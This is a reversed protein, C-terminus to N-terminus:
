APPMSLDDVIKGAKQAALIADKHEMFFANNQIQSRKFSQVGETGPKAPNTGSGVPTSTGNFLFGRKEKLATIAAEAGDVGADTLSIGSRDVLTLAAELDVVGEKVLLQTLATNIQATQVQGKLSELETGRKEALEEFKKQTKLSEEEKAAAQAEYEKVKKAQEALEKFRSHQWIRKDEFVKGIQDDSLKTPDFTEQDGAETKAPDSGPTATPTTGSAPPTTTGADGGAPAINNLM